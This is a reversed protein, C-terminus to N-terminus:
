GLHYTCVGPRDRLTTLASLHSAALDLVHIHLRSGSTARFDNDYIVLSPSIGDYRPFLPHIGVPHFLTISQHDLPSRREESGLADTRGDIQQSWLPQCHGTPLSEDYPPPQVSDVTASSSFILNPM